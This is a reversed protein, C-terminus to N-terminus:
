IGVHNTEWQIRLKKIVRHLITGVNSETMDLVQAIERNNMDAGFKLAIIEQERSPLQCLLQYLHQADQRQQVETEVCIAADVNQAAYLPLPENHKERLYDLVVNRGIQFLWAGFAGLDHQYNHRYRWARMMTQATLDRAIDSNGTRYRFFNYLRPTQEEYVADWDVEQPM